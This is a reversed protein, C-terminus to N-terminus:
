EVARGVGPLACEIQCVATQDDLGGAGGALGDKVGDEILDADASVAGGGAPGALADGGAGGRGIGRSGGADADDEIIIATPPTSYVVNKPWLTSM